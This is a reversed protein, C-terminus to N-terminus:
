LKGEKKRRYYTAKSLGLAEWPKAVAEAQAADVARAAGLGEVLESKGYSGLPAPLRLTELVAVRKELATLRGPLSPLDVAAVRGEDERAM